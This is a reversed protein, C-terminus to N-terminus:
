PGGYISKNVADATKGGLLQELLYVATRACGVALTWGSGGHGYNHVLNLGSSTDARVKANKATFPRLGQALPYEEIVKADDLSPLFTRARKWMNEVEPSDATLDLDDNYPQVISGVILIEDSRPVLFVTKTHDNPSTPDVVQTPVLYAEDLNKFKENDTNAIRKIAGRVPFVDTPDGLNEAGLGTANIVGDPTYGHKALQEKLPMKVLLTEMDAGKNRIHAMLYKMAKDTNVIPANHTYADKLQKWYPEGIGIDKLWSEMSKGNNPHRQFGTMRNKKDNEEIHAVKKVDADQSTTNPKEPLSKYFFQNLKTMALGYEAKHRKDKLNLLKDYFEYSQLAWEEYHELQAWGPPPHTMETVGCGGPPFEWLAGAIQSTLRSHQFDKSWAWHEALITVKFGKDLLIWATMLGSVGGGIVVIHKSSSDPKKLADDAVSLNVEPIVISPKSPFTTQKLTITTDAMTIDKVRHLPLCSFEEALHCLYFNRESPTFAAPSQQLSHPISLKQTLIDTLIHSLLSSNCISQRVFQTPDLLRFVCIEYSM